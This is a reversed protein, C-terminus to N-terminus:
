VGTYLPSGIARLHNQYTKTGFLADTTSILEIKNDIIWRKLKESCLAKVDVVRVEAMRSESLVYEDLYGPHWATLAIYRDMLRDEDDLFYRVPDYKKRAEHSDEFCSKYITSPQAPMYINLHAYEERAKNIKGERDPKDGFGYIIGFEDCAQRRAREFESDNPQIWTYDPVRGMLRICRELQARCEILVEQYKATEKLKGDKRWKFRGEGNVMSLVLAPDAVPRGWFHSHWGVSIWPFERMRLIADETGPTDLMLDVSTVIGNRIAEFTGDNHTKTYGFDDARIILKMDTNM